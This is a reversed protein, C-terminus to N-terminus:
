KEMQSILNLADDDHKNKTLDNGGVENHKFYKVINNKVYLIKM